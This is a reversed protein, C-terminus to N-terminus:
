PRPAIRTLRSPKSKRSACSRVFSRIACCHSRWRKKCSFVRKRGDDNRTPTALACRSRASAIAFSRSVVVAELTRDSARKPSRRWLRTSLSSWHRRRRRSTCRYHLAHKLLAKPLLLLVVVVFRSRTRARDIREANRHASAFLPPAGSVSRDIPARARTGSCNVRRARLVGLTAFRRKYIRKGLTVLFTHKRRSVRKVPTYQQTKM